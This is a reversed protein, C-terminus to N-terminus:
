WLVAKMGATHLTLVALLIPGELPLLWASSLDQIFQSPDSSCSSCGAAQLLYGTSICMCSGWPIDSLQLSAGLKLISCPGTSSWPELTESLIAWVVAWMVWQQPEEEPCVKDSKSIKLLQNSQLQSRAYPTGYLFWCISKPIKPSSLINGTKRIIRQVVPTVLYPFCIM